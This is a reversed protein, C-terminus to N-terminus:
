AEYFGLIRALDEPFLMFIDHDKINTGTIITIKRTIEDTSIIPASNIDPRTGKLLALGKEIESLISYVSAYQGSPVVINYIDLVRHEQDILRIRQDTQINYWSYTYSIESLGVEYSSDLRLVKALKTVYNGITNEYLDHSSVNSPLTVYFSEMTRFCRLLL